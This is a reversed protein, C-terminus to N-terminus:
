HMQSDMYDYLNDYGDVNIEVMKLRDPDSYYYDTSDAYLEFKNSLSYSRLTDENVPNSIVQKYIDNWTSNKDRDLFFDANTNNAYAHGCEHIFSNSMYEFLDPSYVNEKIDMFQETFMVIDSTKSWGTGQTCYAAFGDAAEIKKRTNPDLYLFTITEVRDTIENKFKETTGDLKTMISNHYNFLRGIYRNKDLYTMPEYVVKGDECKFIALPANVKIGDENYFEIFEGNYKINSFISSRTGNQSLYTNIEGYKIVGKGDLIDYYQAIIDQPYLQVDRLTTKLNNMFEKADKESFGQFKLIKNLVDGARSLAAAINKQFGEQNMTGKVCKLADTYEGKSAVGSKLEIGSLRNVASSIESNLIYLQAYADTVSKLDTNVGQEYQKYAMPGEAGLAFLQIKLSMKNM